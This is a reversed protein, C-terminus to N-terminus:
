YLTHYSYDHLESKWLWALLIQLGQQRFMINILIPNGPSNKCLNFIDEDKAESLLVTLITIIYTPSQPPPPNNNTQTKKYGSLRFNHQIFYPLCIYVPLLCILCTHNSQWSGTSIHKRSSSCQRGSLDPLKVTLQLCSSNFLHYFAKKYHFIRNFINSIWEVM